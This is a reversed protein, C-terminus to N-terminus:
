LLRIYCYFVGFFIVAIGQFLLTATCKLHGLPLFRSNLLTLLVGTSIPKIVTSASPNLLPPVRVVLDLYTHTLHRRRFRLPSPPAASTFSIRMQFTFSSVFRSPLSSTSNLDVLPLASSPAVSPSLPTQFKVVSRPNWSDVSKM